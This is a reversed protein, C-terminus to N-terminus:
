APVPWDIHNRRLRLVNGFQAGEKQAMRVPTRGHADGRRRGQAVGQRHQICRGAFQFGTKGVHRGAGAHRRALLDARAGHGGAKEGTHKQGKIHLHQQQAKNYAKGTNEGCDGPKRACPLCLIPGANGGFFGKETGASPVLAGHGAM